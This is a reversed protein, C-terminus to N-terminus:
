ICDVNATLDNLGLKIANLLVQSITDVPWPVIIHYTIFSLTM